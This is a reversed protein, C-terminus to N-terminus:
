TKDELLYTHFKCEIDEGYTERAWKILVNQTEHMKVSNLGDSYVTVEKGDLQTLRYPKICVNYKKVKGKSIQKMLNTFYGYPKNNWIDELEERTFHM